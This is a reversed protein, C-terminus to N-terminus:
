ESTQAEVTAMIQQASFDGTEAPAQFQLDFNFFGGAPLHSALPVGGTTVASFEPATGVAQTRGWGLVFTESAPAAGPAWSASGSTRITLAEVSTGDNIATFYGGAAPTAATWTKRSAGPEITGLHWSLPTVQVGLTSLTVRFLGSRTATESGTTVTLARPGLSAGFSITVDAVLQTPSIVTTSHVALGPVPSSLASVGNVFHTNLGTVAVHLHAAGQSGASPGAAILTPTTGAIPDASKTTLSVDDVFWGPFQTVSGDPLFKFLVSLQATRGANFPSLDVRVPRMQGMDPGNFDLAFHYFGDNNYRIFVQAFDFFRETGLRHWFNLNVLQTNNTLPVTFSPSFARQIVSDQYNSACDLAGFKLETLPTARGNTSTECAVVGPLPGSGNGIAGTLTWGSLGSEFDFLPITATNAMTEITFVDSMVPAGPTAVDVKLRLSQNSHDVGDNLLAVSFTDTSAGNAPVVGYTISSPSLVVASAPVQSGLDVSLSVVAGLADASGRNRVTLAVDAAESRDLFADGDKGGSVRMSEFRALPGSGFSFNGTAILAYGQRNSAFPTTVGNGPVNTGRVRVTYAGPVPRDLYVNEVTNRADAAAAGAPSSMGGAFNVNGRYLAGAPDVVELDLNNVLTVGAGIPGPPDAWALTVRLPEVSSVNVLTFTQVQGTQIAATGAPPIAAAAGNLVDNLVRLERLDGPFFLADDLTLRGWGQGFNPIPGAAGGTGDGATFQGGLSRGSNILVAKILANSPDRADSPTKTGSPYFGDTFYERALLGAGAATPSAFSTGSAASTVCNNNPPDTLSAGTVSSAETASNISQGPVVLDPKIRGDSTPGHSSFNALDEAGQSGNVTAGVTVTNKATSGLLGLGGPAPGFNDAAFFVTYHQLRWMAEDLDRSDIDYTNSNLVATAPVGYSNSHIRAGSDHAQQQLPTQGVSLGDLSGDHQGVDQFVVTAGPAMGDGLDHAPDAATAPTAFNDGVANGVTHTGHFGFASSDYAEAAGVRYYSRVKNGPNTVNANPPQTTNFLTQASAASSFRMQCADTDLGTDATGYIQGVGTIGHSWIPTAQSATHGSQIVWLSQDNVPQPEHYEEIWEVDHQWALAALLTALAAARVSLIIRGGTSASSADSVHRLTVSPDVGAIMARLAEASGGRFTSVRLRVEEDESRDTLGAALVPDIKYGPHFDGVWRVNPLADLRARQAETLRVVYANHPLYTLAEAGTQQLRDFWEPLIPGAFQVIYAHRGGRPYAAATLDHPGIDPLAPQRQLPDFADAKLLLWEPHRVADSFARARADSVAAAPLLPGAKRQSAPQLDSEHIAIPRKRDEGAEASASWALLAGLLLRSGARRIVALGRGRDRTGM